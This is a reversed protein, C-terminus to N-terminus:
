VPGTKGWNASTKRWNEVLKEVIGCGSGDVTQTKGETKGDIWPDKGPTFTPYVTGPILHGRPCWDPSTKASDAKIKKNGARFCLHPARPWWGKIHDPCEKCHRTSRARSM